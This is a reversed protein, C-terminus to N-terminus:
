VDYAIANITFDRQNLNDEISTGNLSTIDFIRDGSIVRITMQGPKGLRVIHGDSKAILMKAFKEPNGTVAIDYDTPIRGLLLDRVSGGIIYTGKLRPLINKNFPIM